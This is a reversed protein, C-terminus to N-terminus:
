VVIGTQISKGNLFQKAQMIKGNPAQIELIEVFGNKAKIVLGQKGNAIVVEGNKYNKIDFNCEYQKAKYVKYQNGNLVFFATPTPNYARVKNVISEVNENFNLVANEKTFMTTFTANSQDQKKFVAKGSEIIELCEVLTKAGVSAMKKFLSETTDEKEIKIKTQLLIDGSDVEKEMKMITIGSEADGNFIATQIPSPGRYKPLLSGHLNIPMAINLIEQSLIQGFAVLVLLDPKLSKLIQVGEKSISNFQYVPINHQIALTKVPSFVVNKGRGVPKDPKTVVALVQHKTKLIEAFCIKAIEPTGLFVLNM